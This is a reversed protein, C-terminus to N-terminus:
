PSPDPTCFGIYQAFVPQGILGFHRSHVAPHAKREPDFDYVTTLNLFGEIAVELYHNANLARIVSFKGSTKGGMVLTASQRELDISSIEFDLKAPTTSTFEGADYSWSHGREFSCKFANPYDDAAFAPYVACGFAAFFVTLLWRNM